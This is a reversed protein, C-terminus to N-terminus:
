FSLDKNLDRLFEKEEATREKPKKNRIDAAKQRREPTIRAAERRLSMPTGERRSAAAKPSLTM